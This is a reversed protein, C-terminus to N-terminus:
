FVFYVKRQNKEMIKFKASIINIIDSYFINWRYDFHMGATSITEVNYTTIDIDKLRQTYSNIDEETFDVGYITVTFEPNYRHFSYLCVLSTEIYNKDIVIFAHVDDCFVVSFTNNKPITLFKKM